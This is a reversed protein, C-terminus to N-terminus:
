SGQRGVLRYEIPLSVELRDTALEGPLPPFPSAQDLLEMAAHDLHMSGSSQLMEKELLHGGHDLVFRVQVSGELGRRRAAAPYQKHRDLWDILELEVAAILQSDASGSVRLDPSEALPPLPLGIEPDASDISSQDDHEPTVVSSPDGSTRAKTKSPESALMPEKELPRITQAPEPLRSEAGPSQGAQEPPSPSALQVLEVDIMRTELPSQAPHWAILGALLAVHLLVSLAIAGTLSTDVTAPPLHLAPQDMADLTDIMELM